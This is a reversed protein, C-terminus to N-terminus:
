EIGIIILYSCLFQFILLLSFYFFFISSNIVFKGIEISYIYIKLSSNTTTIVGFTLRTESGTSITTIDTNLYNMAHKLYKSKLSLMCLDAHIPTLQSRQRRVKAIAM